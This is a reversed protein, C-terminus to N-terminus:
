AQQDAYGSLNYVYSLMDSGENSTNSFPVEFITESNNKKKFGEVLQDTGLLSYKNSKIVDESLDKAEKWNGMYLNVKALLAKASTKSFRIKSNTRSGDIIQDDPM